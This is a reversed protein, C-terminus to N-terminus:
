PHPTIDYITLFQKGPGYYWFIRWANPTRHEVYSEFIKEGDPGSLSNYEHTQLSPHRLNSTMMNLTKFVKQYKREDKQSLSTLKNTADQSFVLLFSSSIEQDLDLSSELNYQCQEFNQKLGYIQAKAAKLNDQLEQNETTLKENEDIVYEEFAKKEEKIKELKAKTIEIKAILAAVEAQKQETEQQLQNQYSAIANELEEIRKQHTLIGQLREIVLQSGYWIKHIKDFTKQALTDTASVSKKYLLTDVMVWASLSGTLWWAIKWPSETNLDSLNSNALMSSSASVVEMEEDKKSLRSTALVINEQSDRSIDSFTTFQITLGCILPTSVIVIVLKGLCQIVKNKTTLKMM